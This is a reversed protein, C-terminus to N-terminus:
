LKQHQFFFNSLSFIVAMQIFRKLKTSIQDQVKTKNLVMQKADTLEQGTPRAVLRQNSLPSM